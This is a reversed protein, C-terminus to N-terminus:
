KLRSSRPCSCRNALRFRKSRKTGVGVRAQFMSQLWKVCTYLQTYNSIAPLKYRGAGVPRIALEARSCPPKSFKTFRGASLYRDPTPQSNRTPSNAALILPTIVPSRARILICYCAMLHLYIHFLLSIFHNDGSSYMNDFIHSSKCCLTRPSSNLSRSVGRSTTIVLDRSLPSEHASSGAEAQPTQSVPASAPLKPWPSDVTFVTSM